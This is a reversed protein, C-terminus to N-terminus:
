EDYGLYRRVNKYKAVLYEYGQKIQQIRNWQKALQSEKEAPTRLLKFSSLNSYRQNEQKILDAYKTISNELERGLIEALLISTESLKNTVEKMEREYSSIQEYTSNQVADIQKQTLEKLATIQEHNTNQITIIQKETSERIAEIHKNNLEQLHVIQDRFQIDSENKSQLFIILTLYVGIVTGIAQLANAIWEKNEFALAVFLFLAVLVFFITWHLKYRKMKPKDMTTRIYNENGIVIRFYAFAGLLCLM